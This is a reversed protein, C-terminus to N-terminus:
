ARSRRRIQALGALGAGLLLLTTPEPVAAVAAVDLSINDIRPDSDTGNREGAFGIVHTTNTATFTQSFHVWSTTSPPTFLELIPTGDLLVGFALAAITGPSQCVNGCAVDGQVTYLTGLILGSVSQQITPDSAVDGAENLIFTGGPNGESSRHGGSADIHSSTWGGGTSNSPVVIEFDGNTILNVARAATPHGVVVLCAVLLLASWRIGRSRLYRM